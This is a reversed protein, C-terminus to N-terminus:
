QHSLSMGMFYIIYRALQKKVRSFLKYFQRSEIVPWPIISTQGRHARTIFNLSQEEQVVTCMTLCLLNSHIVSLRVEPSSSSSDLPYQTTHGSASIDSVFEKVMDVTDNKM